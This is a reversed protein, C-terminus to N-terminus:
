RTHTYTIESGLDIAGLTNSAPTSGHDPRMTM